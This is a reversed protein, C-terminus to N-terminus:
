ISSDANDLVWEFLAELSPKLSIAAETLKYEVTTPVTPFVKRTVLEYHELERLRRSVTTSSSNGSTFHFLKFKILDIEDPTEKTNSTTENINKSLYFIFSLKM